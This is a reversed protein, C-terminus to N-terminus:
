QTGLNQQTFGQLYADPPPTGTDLEHNLAQGLEKFQRNTEEDQRDRERWAAEAAQEAEGYSFNVRLPAGKEDFRFSVVGDKEFAIRYSPATKGWEDQTQEDAVLQFQEDPQLIGEARLQTEMWDFSNAVTPYAKEPPHKMLHNDAGVNTVGWVAALQDTAAKKAQDVNAFLEYNDLFLTQFDNALAQAAPKWGPNTASQTTFPIIGPIQFLTAPDFNKLAGNEASFLLEGQKRLGNRANAEAPDVPGRLTHLLDEDKMLGKRAQWFAVDKRDSEPIQDFAKQSAKQMETMLDLAWVAKTPDPSRIMGRLHDVVDTPIAQAHQILPILTNAAYASDKQELAQQGEPGIFANLAKAHEENGPAFTVQGTLMNQALQKLRLEKDRAALIDDAAKRDEYDTLVGKQIMTDIDAQGASGDYLAIKLANVLSANQAKDAQVQASVEAAVEREADNTLALRDEYPLNSYVPNDDINAAANEIMDGETAYGQKRLEKALDASSGDQVARVMETTIDGNKAVVSILAARSREPLHALTDLSGFAEQVVNDATAAEAAAQEQTVGSAVLADAAMNVASGIGAHEDRLRQIQAQRYAVGELGKYALRGVQVKEATSLGSAAITEDVRARQQQLTEISGDQGIINKASDLTDQIGQRFYDDNTQYQYGLANLSLKGGLDATRVRFEDQLEPPVQTALFEAEADRYQKAVTDYFDTSGPTNTRKAEELAQSQNTEFISFNRLATFKKKQDEQEKVFAGLAIAQGAIQTMREGIGAGFAEPTANISPGRLAQNTPLVGLTTRTPVKM